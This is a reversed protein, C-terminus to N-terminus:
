ESLTPILMNMEFEERPLFPYLDELPRSRMSGDPMQASAVRPIRAEDPHVLVRMIGPGPANLFNEIEVQLFPEIASELNGSNQLCVYPIGYAEALPALPPLTLGSTTDAGVLRGFYNRQSSRISAYGGNDIVFFKIPLGLRSITQLEQINMQFGGDGEVCITRQGGSALCAGIAAPIGFGMSGTGRNHFIRQRHKARIMLLFIEAAFGSSGPAVIEGEVLLDSLLHSFLYMSLGAGTRHEALLLPYREKWHQCREVWSRYDSEPADPAQQLMECLFDRADAIIPLEIPTQMKAIEAADIDVMVKRAVRALKEHAYATLAMDMRAGIVLLFDANQLAFNAYRPAIAGPRGFCLPHADPILDIGLWTTLVPIGLRDVLRLFDEHGGALRVGQGVLLVPREATSLLHLCKSVSEALSKEQRPAVVELSFGPQTEPNIMAAQVDLPIDLWVPGKRGTQALTIAKELHYRITHPDTITVAYKTLPSVISVIDIEQSGLQRVGLNGMLDARKVQGSLFLCPTSDLWAGALGTIANTGGPGSTVLAVGLNGTIKAYAEAAIGCAQEHLNCVYEIGCDYLSDNLHMAGGGPLLFVHKVGLKALTQFIYDSLKIV